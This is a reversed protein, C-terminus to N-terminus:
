GLSVEWRRNSRILSVTAESVGFRIALRRGSGYEKPTAAIEKVQELKLKAAGNSEGIFLEPHTQTIHRGHKVQDRINQSRTGEYLHHPSVCSQNGCSHCIEYGERVLRGHIDVWALVHALNIRKGFRKQAVHVYGQRDPKRSSMICDTFTNDAM